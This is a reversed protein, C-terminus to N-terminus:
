RAAPAALKGVFRREFSDGCRDPLLQSGISCGVYSAMAITSSPLKPTFTRGHLRALAFRYGTNGIMFIHVQQFKRFSCVLCDAFQLPYRQLFCGGFDRM